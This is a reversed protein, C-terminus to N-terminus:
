RILDDPATRTLFFTRRFWTPVPYGEVGLVDHNGADMLAVQRETVTNKLRM